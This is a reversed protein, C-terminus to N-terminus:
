EAVRRVATYLQYSLSRAHKVMNDEEEEIKVVTEGGDENGDTSDTIGLFMPTSLSGIRGSPLAFAPSSSLPPSVMVGQPLVTNIQLERPPATLQAHRQVLESQLSEILSTQDNITRQQTEHLAASHANRAELEQKQGQIHYIELDRFEVCTRLHQITAEYYRVMSVMWPMPHPSLEVPQPARAAM